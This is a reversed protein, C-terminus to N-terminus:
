IIGYNLHTNSVEQSAAAYDADDSLDQAEMELMAAPIQFELHKLLKNEFFYCHFYAEMDYFSSEEKEGKKKVKFLNGTKLVKACMFTRVIMNQM